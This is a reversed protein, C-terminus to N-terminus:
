RPEGSGARLARLREVVVDLMGIWTDAGPAGGVMSPLEVVPVGVERSVEEVQRNNSWAATVVADAGTERATAIVRALHAPTPPIGPKLEIAAVIEMGFWRALYDYEVHYVVLKAGRLEERAAEWRETAADLRECYAAHREEYAARGEPDVRVLGALVRDAMHRGAGPDLNFHPNGQPHLDGGARSLSEPVNIPEWGESANVFGPAGPQVDRNRARLLLGPFWAAEASLGLEVVLDARSLAVLDSPRVSVNHLNERGRCISHVEVREGGIEDAVDALDPVTTVVRLREAPAAGAAGALAAALFAIRVIPQM